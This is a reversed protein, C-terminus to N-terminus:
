SSPSSYSQVLPQKKLLEAAERLDATDFGETFQAHIASLRDRAATARHDKASLKYLSIAARLEWSRAGQQRAIELAQLILPEAQPQNEPSMQLLLDGRLRLLNSEHFRENTSNAHALGEDVATLAEGLRGAARFAEAMVAFYHSLSLVAGTSRYIEIGRKVLDVGQGPDTGELVVGSGQCLTGLALWIGYGHETGIAVTMDGCRKAAAGMGCHQQICGLHYEGFAQSFPDKFQQGLESAERAIARARDPFGAMWLAWALHARLTCIANQGTFSAHWRSRELDMLELVSLGVSMTELFEGRFLTTCCRAFAAELRHSSDLTAAHDWLERSLQDAQNLESRLARWAWQGWTVHFLPAAPGIRECLEKARSHVAKLGPAGWGQAMTIATGLLTQFDLELRDREPSPGVKAIQELGTELHRIAERYASRQHARKGATLFYEIARQLQGAELYHHALLEPQTTVVDPFHKELKEAITRHFQQRRKKIMSQYTADQILAHKFTYTEPPSPNSLLLLDAEVLKDLEDKLEERDLGSAAAMFELSFTRGITAGLQIIEKNGSLRDLRAILLDNLTAPIAFSRTSMSGTKNETLVKAFEEVFLPVGDTRENLQDIMAETTKDSGGRARIMEAVQPKTLRTLAVLTQGDNGKWPADFEPRATFVALTKGRGGTEVFHSLLELTTPDIWHLDEVAFLLPQRAARNRLWDLIAALLLEKQRDPSLTLPPLLGESPISLLSCFLAQRLPDTIGGDKLTELLRDFRERAPADKDFPVTRSFYDILPFFPSGRHHESCYWEVIQGNEQGVLEKLVHVLRSKGLGPDGVLLFVHGNGARAAEWRKKLLGVERDRGILPSLGGPRRAEVRNRVQLEKHVQFFRTSGAGQLEATGAETYDFYGDVLQRVADTVIIGNQALTADLKMAASVVEGLVSPTGNPQISVVATGAHVICRIALERPAKEVISLAARVAVRQADELTCPYGFCAIHSSGIGPLSIAGLQELQIRCDALFRLVLDHTEELDDEDTQKALASCHFVTLQRRETERSQYSTIEASPTTLSKYAPAKGTNRNALPVSTLKRLAAAFEAASPYRDNPDKALAKLLVAELEPPIDARVQRPPLPEDVQIHRLMEFTDATANFPFRGCLMKYLTTALSYLDSRGDLKDTLGKAQEPSMYMLTGSVSGGAVPEQTSLALGFDVLVPQSDEILIINSLKIDRHIIGRSHAHALADAISATIEAAELWSPSNHNLWESLNPGSLLESIIFCYGGGISIDHVTVIGRHRLQALRRGEVLLLEPTKQQLRSAYTVKIAIPRHLRRDFGRYVTGFGGQGLKEMLEYRDGLAESIATRLNPILKESSEGTSHHEKTEQFQQDPQESLAFSDVTSDATNPTKSGSNLFDPQNVM